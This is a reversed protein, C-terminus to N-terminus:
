HLQRASLNLGVFDTATQLVFNSVGNALTKRPIKIKSAKRALDHAEIKLQGYLKPL